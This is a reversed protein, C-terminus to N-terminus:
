LKNLYELLDAMMQPDAEFKPMPPTEGSVIQHILQQTSKHRAVGHLSPGVKGDAWQGHCVVCNMVFISRGKGADGEITMVSQTYADAVPRLVFFLVGAIVFSLLLIVLKWPQIPRDTTVESNSSMTAAVSTFLFKNNVIYRLNQLYKYKTQM